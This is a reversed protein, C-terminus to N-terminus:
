PQTLWQKVSKSCLTSEKDSKLGSMMKHIRLKIHITSLLLQKLTKKQENSKRISIEFRKIEYNLKM